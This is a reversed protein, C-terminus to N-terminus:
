TGLLALASRAAVGMEYASQYRRTRDLALAGMCCREVGEPVEPNFIRPPPPSQRMIASMADMSSLGHFPARGTVMEYLLVGIAYVDSRADVANPTHSFRIRGQSALDFTSRKLDSISM